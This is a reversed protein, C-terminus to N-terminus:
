QEQHKVIGMHRNRRALEPCVKFLNLWAEFQRVRAEERELRAEERAILSDCRAILLHINTTTKM